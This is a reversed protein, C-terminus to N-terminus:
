GLNLTALDAVPETFSCSGFSRALDRGSGLDSEDFRHGRWRISDGDVELTAADTEELLASADVETGGSRLLAAALLVNLYGHMVARPAAAEYTLPHEARLPHHLGATAKFPVAHRVCAAMFRAVDASPPIADPTVGGTRAKASLGTGALAAILREPDPTLPVEVFGSAWDPVLRAAESIAEISAARLEVADIEAAGAGEAAHRCNFEGILDLDEKLRAGALASLKWSTGGPRPELHRAAAADFEALRAVPVIFRGLMWKDAGRRYAAYSAVAEEMGLGAPPFLGAYDVVEGLLVRMPGM